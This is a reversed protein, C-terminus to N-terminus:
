VMRAAMGLLFSSTAFFFHGLPSPQTSFFHHFFAWSPILYPIWDGAVVTHTDLFDMCRIETKTHVWQLIEWGVEFTELLFYILQSRLYLEVVLCNRLVLFRIRLQRGSFLSIWVPITMWSFLMKFVICVISNCISHEQTFQPHGPQWILFIRFVNETDPYMCLLPLLSLLGKPDCLLVFSHHFLM